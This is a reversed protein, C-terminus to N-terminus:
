WNQQRPLIGPLLLLPPLEIADQYRELGDCLMSRREERNRLFVSCNGPAARRKFRLLVLGCECSRSSFCGSIDCEKTPISTEFAVRSTAMRGELSVKATSFLWLANGASM